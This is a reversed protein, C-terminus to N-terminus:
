INLEWPVAVFCSSFREQHLLRFNFNTLLIPEWPVAVFCSSLLEQHLLRFNFNTLLIPEEKVELLLISARTILVNQYLDPQFPSQPHILSKFLRIRIRSKQIDLYPDMDPEPNSWIHIIIKLASVTGFQM